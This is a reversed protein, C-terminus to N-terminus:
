PKTRKGKRERYEPAILEAIYKITYDPFEVHVKRAAEQCGRGDLSVAGGEVM